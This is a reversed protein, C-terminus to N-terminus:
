SGTENIAETMVFVGLDMAPNDSDRDRDRHRELDGVATQKEEKFAVRPIEVVERCLNVLLACCRVKDFVYAAEIM